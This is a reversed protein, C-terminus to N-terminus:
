YDATLMFWAKTVDDFSPDDADFTALKFLLAYHEGVQRAASLDWERGWDADGSEASFDHYVAQLQWPGLRYTVSGYIDEVGAAPSALFQDAWGQFAHLTALPTRFAAGARGQDGGLSEIGVALSLDSDTPTWAADVRWYQADFDVPADAADAQHAFELRWDVTGASVPSDGTIRLGVTATSATPDDDNDLYYIYSSLDVRERLGFEANLLHTAMRQDGAAVTDGFVRNVNAVFAYTFVADPLGTYGLRLADYTQENQRWGVGGIFRENDFTMRQRGLRGSWDTGGVYDFYLQNLDAGKPDAVVPYQSRGPSTGAGSNFDDFLLEGVYDFEAFARWDRWAGTAFNLRLRATSADADETFGDQDVHEFRYRLGVHAKGSTIAQGLSGDGAAAPDEDAFAVGAIAVMALISWRVGARKDTSTM